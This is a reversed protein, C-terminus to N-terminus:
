LAVARKKGNKLRIINKLFLEGARYSSRVFPGSAVYLFGLDEGIKKFHEFQKPPVYQKVSLHFSSPRLYQGLTFIDVGIARLEKMASIVDEEAEGFGLMISSKTYIAPNIKKVHALVQLSQDFNARGDRVFKQLPRTTEINHAIVDPKSFILTELAKKDGAFDPILVETILEPHMKKASRICEAFHSAGGDPVDDRDVSTIVAYDLKLKAIAEALHRPEEPDLGQKPVGSKVNCFRCARTCTDGMLMFTATGGEWCESMNPCHAEQCVTALKLEALMHKIKQSRRNNKPLSFKLWEPKKATNMWTINQAQVQGQGGQAGTAGREGSRPCGGCSM